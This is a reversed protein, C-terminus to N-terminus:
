RSLVGSETQVLCRKRDPCSLVSHVNKPMYQRQCFSLRVLSSFQSSRYIEIYTFRGSGGERSRTKIHRIRFSRSTLLFIVYFCFFSTSVFHTESLSLSLSLSLSQLTALFSKPLRSSRCRVASLRRAPFRLTGNSHQVLLLLFVTCEVVELTVLKM